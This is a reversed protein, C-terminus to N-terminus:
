DQAGRPLATCLPSPCCRGGHSSLQIFDANSALSAPLQISAAPHNLHRAHQLRGRHLKVFEDPDFKRQYLRYDPRGSGDFQGRWIPFARRGDGGRSPNPDQHVLDDNRIISNVMLFIENLHIRVDDETMIMPFVSIPVGLTQPRHEDLRLWRLRNELRELM